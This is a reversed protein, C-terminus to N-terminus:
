RLFLLYFASYLVGLVSAIALVAFVVMYWTIENNMAIRIKKEMSEGKVLIEAVFKWIVTIVILLATIKVGIM